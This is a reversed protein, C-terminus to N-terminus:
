AWLPKSSFLTRGGQRLCKSSVSKSTESRRGCMRTWAALRVKTSLPVFRRLCCSSLPYTKRVYMCMHKYHPLISLLVLPHFILYIFVHMGTGMFYMVYYIDYQYLDAWIYVCTQKRIVNERQRISTYIRFVEVRWNRGLYVNFYM